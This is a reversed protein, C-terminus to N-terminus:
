KAATVWSMKLGRRIRPHRADWYLVGEGQAVERVLINMKNTRQKQFTPMFRKEQKMLGSAPGASLM